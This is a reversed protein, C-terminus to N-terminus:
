ARPATDRISGDDERYAMMEGPYTEARLGMIRELDALSARRLQLSEGIIATLGSALEEFWPQSQERFAEQDIAGLSVTPAVGRDLMADVEVDLFLKEWTWLTYRILVEQAVAAPEAGMLLGAWGRVSEAVQNHDFREPVIRVTRQGTEDTVAALHPVDAAIADPGGQELTQTV